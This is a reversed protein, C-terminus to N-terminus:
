HFSLPVSTPVPPVVYVLADNAFLSTTVQTSVEFTVQGVPLGAVDLAIVIVTFEANGALTLIAAAGDPATQEPVLTVNVAVGVL